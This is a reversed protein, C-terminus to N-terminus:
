ERRRDSWWPHKYVGPLPRAGLKVWEQIKLSTAYSHPGKWQHPPPYPSTNFVLCITHKKTDPFNKPTKALEPTLFIGNELHVTYTNPKFADETVCHENLQRRNDPEDRLLIRHKTLALRMDFQSIQSLGKSGTNSDNNYIIIQDLAKSGLNEWEFEAAIWVILERSCFM